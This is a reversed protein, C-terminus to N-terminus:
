SFFARQKGSSSASPCSSGLATNTADINPFSSIDGCLGENFSVYFSKGFSSFIRAFMPALAVPLPGTLLSGQLQLDLLATLTSLQAPIEGTFHNSQLNLSTLKTLMSITTPIKSNLNNNALNLSMLNTLNGVAPDLSMNLMKSSLSIGSLVYPGSPCPNNPNVCGCSVGTWSCPTNSSWALSPPSGWTAYM